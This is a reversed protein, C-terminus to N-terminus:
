PAPASSRHTRSRSASAPQPTAAKPTPTPPNPPRRAADDAANPPPAPSSSSCSASSRSPRPNRTCYSCGSSCARHRTRPGDPDRVRHADHPAPRADRVRVAPGPAPHALGAAAAIIGLTLHGAPRLSASSPQRSPPSPSPSHHTRRHRHLPRRDTPHAPHLHGVRHRRTGAFGIGALNIDGHWPETLLVVGLLAMAPWTLARSNHSRVAAVTLPGLFEVAVATGLPIREIAALFAIAMLGTAVGLGLLAPCTAAAYRLAAPPPGPGPLDTSGHQAPALRNRGPGRGLDPGGVPRLGTPSVADGGDGAGLAAGRRRPLRTHTTM